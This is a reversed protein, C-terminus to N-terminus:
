IDSGAGGLTQNRVLLHQAEVDLLFQIAFGDAIAGSAASLSDQLDDSLQTPHHPPTAPAVLTLRQLQGVGFDDLAVVVAGATQCQSLLHVTVVGGDVTHQVAMADPRAGRGLAPCSSSCAVPQVSRFVLNCSPPSHVRLRCYSKGRGFDNQLLATAGQWEIM